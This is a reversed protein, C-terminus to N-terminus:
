RFRLKIVRIVNHSSYFNSLEQVHLKRWRGTIEQKKRESGGGGRPVNEFM